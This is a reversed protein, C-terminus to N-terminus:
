MLYRGRGAEEVRLRSTALKSTVSECKQHAVKTMMKLGSKQFTMPRNSCLVLIRVRRQKPRDFTAQPIKPTM